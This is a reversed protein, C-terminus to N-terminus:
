GAASDGAETRGEDRAATGRRDVGANSAEIFNSGMPGTM